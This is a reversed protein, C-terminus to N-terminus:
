RLDILEINPYDKKNFVFLSNSFNQNNKVNRVKIQTRVNKDEAIEIYLPLYTKANITLNVEKVKQRPNQAKLKVQYCKKNNYNITQHSLTYGKKYIYIFSYPNSKQIEEKTPATVNVEDSNKLLMWQTKGDFWALLQPTSIHFKEKKVYITGQSDGQKQAGRFVTADYDAQLGSSKEFIAVAKDLISKTDQGKTVSPLLTLCLVFAFIKRIM